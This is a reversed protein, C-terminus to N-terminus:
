ASGQNAAVDVNVGTTGDDRAAFVIDVPLFAAIVRANTLTHPTPEMTTFRGGPGSALPLLLQDALHPGVAAKSALYGEVEDAVVDAVEEATVGRTGFGSFVETVQAHRVSVTLMNGPGASKVERVKLQSGSLGLRQGVHALEREAVNFPLNAFWAEATIEMAEGRTELRLPAVLRSPRIEAMVKGGGAPMFGANLLKLSLEAGMARLAPIFSAELFPFPPAAPNHTGGSVIVRSAQGARLLPLLITQVVLTASGATGVAFEYNGARVDGPYFSLSQSGLGANDSYKGGCVAAAARLATLHQRLLGPKARGARINTIEFPQGTLVSLALASRLVQGGGEGESGDIKIM